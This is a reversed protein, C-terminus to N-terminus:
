QRAYQAAKQAFNEAFQPNSPFYLHPFGAYLSSSIHACPWSKESRPKAATFGRGCDSSDYYHFEHGRIREGKRCLLNDGNATLTVYGFRQLKETKYAACDLTGALHAGDLTHHLYLFGGCEAITPMGSDIAEKVSSLMSNNQSLRDTYLEPYGGPLYLGGVGAPLSRDQLPSFFCLECGLKRLLDLNEEYLFCFAEDRAVAISVNPASSAAKDPHPLATALAGLALIEDLALSQEALQGLRNLRQQLDEIEGATVLGLHRSGVSVSQDTPLYGLPQLGETLALEKLTPYLMASAGNFIVGKICSNPRYSCFGRLVAGVSTHMGKVNVVFVVPTQTEAAVTHTSFEGAPGVGDYYGMVGEIVSFTNSAGGLRLRLQQGSSFFPDLNYSALGLVTRHFMPDIYDPGCKFSSLPIGRARLAALIALTVTTKGCGSNSGAILIRHNM